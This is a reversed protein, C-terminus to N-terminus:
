LETFPNVIKLVDDIVQGDQMDNTDLFVKDNM